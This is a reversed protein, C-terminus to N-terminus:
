ITQVISAYMTWCWRKKEREGNFASFLIFQGPLAIELKAGTLHVARTSTVCQTWSRTLNIEFTAIKLISLVNWNRLISYFRNFQEFKSRFNNWINIFIDFSCTLFYNLTIQIESSFRNGILFSFRFEKWCAVIVVENWARQM